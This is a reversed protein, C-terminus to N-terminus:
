VIISPNLTQENKVFSIIHRLQGITTTGNSGIKRAMLAINKTIIKKKKPFHIKYPCPKPPTKSVINDIYKKCKLIITEQDFLSAKTIYQKGFLAKALDTKIYTFYHKAPASSYNCDSFDTCKIPQKNNLLTHLRNCSHSTLAKDQKAWEMFKLFTRKAIVPGNQGKINLIERLHTCYVNRFIQRCRGSIDIKIPELPLKCNTKEYAYMVCFSLIDNNTLRKENFADILFINNSLLATLQALHYYIIDNSSRTKPVITRPKKTLKKSPKRSIESHPRKKSIPLNNSSPALVKGNIIVKLTIPKQPHQLISPHSQLAQAASLNHCSLVTIIM